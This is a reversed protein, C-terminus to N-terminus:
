NNCKISAKEIGYVECLRNVATETLKGDIVIKNVGTINGESDAGIEARAKINTGFERKIREEIDSNIRSSLENKIMDLRLEEGEATEQTSIRSELSDFIDTAKIESLPSIITCLIVVGTIMGVYKRWKEPSLLSAAGSLVAAAIISSIYATM